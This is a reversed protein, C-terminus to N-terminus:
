YARQPATIGATIFGQSIKIGLRTVIPSAEPFFFDGAITVAGVLVGVGIDGWNIGACLMDIENQTITEM